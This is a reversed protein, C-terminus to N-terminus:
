AGFRGREMPPPTSEPSGAPAAPAASGGASAYGVGVCRPAAVTSRETNQWDFPAPHPAVVVVNAGLQTRARDRAEAKCAEAEMGVIEVRGLEQAGPPATDAVEAAAATPLTPAGDKHIVRFATTGCGCLLPIQSLALAVALSSVSARM